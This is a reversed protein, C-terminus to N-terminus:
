EEEETEHSQETVGHAEPDQLCVSLSDSVVGRIM